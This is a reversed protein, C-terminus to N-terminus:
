RHRRAAARHERVHQQGLTIAQQLNARFSTGALPYRPPYIAIGEPPVEPTPPVEIAPPTITVPQNIAGYTQVQVIRLVEPPTTTFDKFEIVQQVQRAIQDSGIWLDYSAGVTEADKVQEPTPLEPAALLTAADLTARYHSCEVGGIFENSLRTIETVAGAIDPTIAPEFGETGNIGPVNHYEDWVGVLEDIQFLSRGVIFLESTTEPDEPLFQTFHVREPVSLEGSGLVQESEGFFDILGITDLHASQFRTFTPFAPPAAHAPHAAVVVGAALLLATVRRFM